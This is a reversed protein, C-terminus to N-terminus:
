SLCTLSLLKLDTLDLTVEASPTGHPCGATRLARESYDEYLTLQQLLSSQRGPEPFIGNSRSPPATPLMDLWKRSNLSKRLEREYEIRAREESNM